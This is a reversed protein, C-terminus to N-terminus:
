GMLRRKREKHPLSFAIDQLIVPLRLCAALRTVKTAGYMNNTKRAKGFVEWLLLLEIIFRINKWVSARVLFPAPHQNQFNTFQHLDALLSFRSEYTFKNKGVGVM